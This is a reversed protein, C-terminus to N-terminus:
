RHGPRVRDGAPLPQRDGGSRRDVDAAGRRRCRRVSAARSRSLVSMGRERFVRELLRAADADEGPLVRDRSSVLTVAAGLGSYASAFEAGTVGSGVVLLHDPLATLDYLQRWDLIREGDPVLGPATRPRAGTALLVTDADLSPPDPRGTGAAPRTGALPDVQVLLGRGGAPVLRGRGRLVTVGAATLRAAVDASQAGALSRIGADVADLDVGTDRPAAGAARARAGVQARTVLAKSPVCDSLVAAGGPGGASVLTVEAGLQAGM